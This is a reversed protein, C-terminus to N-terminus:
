RPPDMRIVYPWTRALMQEYKDYEVGGGAVAAKAMMPLIQAEQGSEVLKSKLSEGKDHQAKM